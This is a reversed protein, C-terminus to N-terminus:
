WGGRVTAQAEPLSGETFASVAQNVTMGRAEYMRVGASKLTTVANPGFMEAVVAGAGQDILMQATSVGAGHAAQYGRGELATTEGTDSDVIVFWRARGFRDSVQSHVDAGTSAVAVKM